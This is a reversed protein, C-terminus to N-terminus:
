WMSVELNGFVISGDSRLVRMRENRSVVNRNQPIERTMLIEKGPLYMRASFEMSALIKLSSKVSEYDSYYTQNMALFKSESVIDETVSSSLEYPASTGTIPTSSSDINHSFRIITFNNSPKDFTIIGGNAYSSKMDGYYDEVSVLDNTPNTPLLAISVRNESSMIKVSYSEVESFSINKIAGFAYNMSTEELNASKAPNLLYLAVIVAGIFLVFAMLVEINGSGRKNM